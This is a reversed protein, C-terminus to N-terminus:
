CVSYSLVITSDSLKNVETLQLQQELPQNFLAVGRGFLVPEITLYLTQVVGATMFLTYISSGGCIAVETCGLQELKALLDQPSATTYYVQNKELKTQTAIDAAGDPLQRSYVITSRDPLARGITDFTTRGMVMVGAQKTRQNFWRSDEASTWRTSTHHADKGIYGDATLAVILFCHM